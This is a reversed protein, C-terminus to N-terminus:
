IVYHLRGQDKMRVILPEREPIIMTTRLMMMINNCCNYMSGSLNQLETEIHNLLKNKNFFEKLHKVFANVNGCLYTIIAPQALCM